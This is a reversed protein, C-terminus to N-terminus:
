QVAAVPARVIPTAPGTEPGSSGPPTQGAGLQFTRGRAPWGRLPPHFRPQRLFTDAQLRLAPVQYDQAFRQLAFAKSSLVLNFEPSPLLTGHGFVRVGAYIPLPFHRR